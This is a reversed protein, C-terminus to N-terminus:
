TNARNVPESLSGIYASSIVISTEITLQRMPMADRAHPRSQSNRERASQSRRLAGCAGALVTELSVKRRSSGACFLLGLAKTEIATHGPFQSPSRTRAQSAARGVAPNESFDQFPTSTHRRIQRMRLIFKLPDNHPALLEEVTERSQRSEARDNRLSGDTIVGAPTCFARAAFAM